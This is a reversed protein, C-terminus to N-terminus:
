DDEYYIAHKADFLVYYHGNGCDKYEESYWGRMKGDDGLAVEISNDYDNRWFTRYNRKNKIADAVLSSEHERNYRYFNPSKWCREKLFSEFIQYTDMWEYKAGEHRKSYVNVYFDETADKIFEDIKHDPLSLFHEIESKIDPWLGSESLMKVSDKARKLVRKKLDVKGNIVPKLSKWDLIDSERLYRGSRRKKPFLICPKYQGFHLWLGVRKRRGDSLTAIFRLHDKNERLVKEVDQITM